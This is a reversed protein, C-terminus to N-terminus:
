RSAQQSLFQEAQQLTEMKGIDFWNYGTPNFGQINLKQCNDIYFPMISFKPETAHQKLPAFVIPSIVHVGGFAMLHKSADITLSAPKVEGTAINTWGQMRNQQDFVLYRQTTRQKVLLTADAGSVLHHNIISRLDLDTFIDANHVLFPEDGDLLSQARLIGGGTDLLQDREDSIAINIGFNNKENLFQIIQDGFHHINVVVQTIGCAIINKIVRELMPVGNLLVLAKPMTNTLPKLRTGLGAAFVMAKM